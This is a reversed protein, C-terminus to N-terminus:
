ETRALTLVSVRLAGSNILAKSANSVTAGTTLVDDVLLIRRGAVQLPNSCIFAKRVNARRQRDSLGVQSPTARIRKLMREDFPVGACGSLSRALLESQNYGRERRRKPHLPVPIVLDFDNRDWNDFFTEVLLPTLISVLNRRELFKLGHVLGALEGRYYGFSRAGSYAPPYLVCDGCLHVSDDAFNPM